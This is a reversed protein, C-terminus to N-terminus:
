VHDHEPAGDKMYYISVTCQWHVACSIVRCNITTLVKPDVFGYSM